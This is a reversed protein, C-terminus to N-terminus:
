KVLVPSQMFESEDLFSSMQFGAGIMTSEHDALVFTGRVPKYSIVLSLEALSTVFNQISRRKENCIHHSKGPFLEGLSPSGGLRTRIAQARIM